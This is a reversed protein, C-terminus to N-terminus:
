YVTTSPAVFRTENYFRILFNWVTELDAEITVGANRFADLWSCFLPGYSRETGEFHGPYSNWNKYIRRLIERLKDVRDPSDIKEPSTIGRLDDHRGVGLIAMAAAITGPYDWRLGEPLLKRNGTVPEVYEIVGVWEDKIDGSQERTMSPINVQLPGVEGEPGRISYRAFCDQGNIANLVARLDGVKEPSLSEKPSIIALPFNSENPAFLFVSERDTIPDTRLEARVRPFTYGNISVTFSNDGIITPRAEGLWYDRWSSEAMVVGFILALDEQGLSIGLSSELKKAVEQVVAFLRLAVVPPSAPILEQSFVELNNIPDERLEKQRLVIRLYFGGRIVNEGTALLQSAVLFRYLNQKPESPLKKRIQLPLEEELITQFQRYFQPSSLRSIIEDNLGPWIYVLPSVGTFDELVRLVHGTGEPSEKTISKLKSNITELVSVSAAILEPNQFINGTQPSYITQEGQAFIFNYFIVVTNLLDETLYTSVYFFQRLISEIDQSLQFLERLLTLDELLQSRQEEELPLPENLLGRTANVAGSILTALTRFGSIKKGDEQVKGSLTRQLQYNYTYGDLSTWYNYYAEYESWPFREELGQLEELFGPLERKILQGVTSINEAAAETEGEEELPAETAPPPPTETPPEAPPTATPPPTAPTVVAEPPTRTAITNEPAKCALFALAAAVGMVLFRRRSVGYEQGWKRQQLKELAQYVNEISLGAAILAEEEQPGLPRGLPLRVAYYGKRETAIPIWLFQEGEERQLVLNALLPEKGLSVVIKKREQSTRLPSIVKEGLLNQFHPPWEERARRSAEEDSLGGGAKLKEVLQNFQEELTSPSFSAIFSPDGGTALYFHPTLERGKRQGVALFSRPGISSIISSSFIAEQAAATLNPIKRWEEKQQNQRRITEPYGGTLFGPRM